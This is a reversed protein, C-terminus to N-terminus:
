IIEGNNKVLFDRRQQPTLNDFDARSIKKNEAESAGPNTKDQALALRANELAMGVNDLAKSFLTGM